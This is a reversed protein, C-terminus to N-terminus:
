QKVQSAMSLPIFATNCWVGQVPKMTTLTCQVTRITSHFVEGKKMVATSDIRVRLADNHNRFVEKHSNAMDIYERKPYGHCVYASDLVSILERVIGHDMIKDTDFTLLTSYERELHHGNVYM